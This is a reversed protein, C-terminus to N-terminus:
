SGCRHWPHIATSPPISRSSLGDHGVAINRANHAALAEAIQMHCLVDMRTFCQHKFGTGPHDSMEKGTLTEFVFKIIDFAVRYSTFALAFMM